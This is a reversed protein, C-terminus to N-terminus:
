YSSWRSGKADTHTCDIFVLGFDPSAPDNVYGWKGTDAPTRAAYAVTQADGDDADARPPKGHDHQDAPEKTRVAAAPHPNPPPQLLPPLLLHSHAPPAGHPFHPNPPVPMLSALAKERVLLGLNAPPKGQHDRAYLSVASRVALLCMRPAMQDAQAKSPLVVTRYSLAAAAAIVVVIIAIKKM